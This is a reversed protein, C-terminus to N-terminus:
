GDLSQGSGASAAPGDRQVRASSQHADEQLVGVMLAVVGVTIASDALNFTPWAGVSIFDVVFGLRVRDALNGIAGGLILGVGITSAAPAPRLRWFYVGLGITMAVALLSLLVAEGRLVGFAAGRNAVYRIEFFDGILEVGRRQQGPGFSADVLMKSWQDVGFVMLGILAASWKPLRARAARM